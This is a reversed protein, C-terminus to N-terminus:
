PQAPAQQPAPPARQQQPQQPQTETTRQRQADGSGQQQQDQGTSDGSGQDSPEDEQQQQQQQQEEGGSQADGEDQTSDRDGGFLTTGGSAKGVSGGSVLEPITLIAAGIVFALAATAAVIKFNVRDRWSRGSPTPSSGNTGARHYSIPAERSPREDSPKTEGDEDHLPPPREESFPRTAETDRAPVTVTELTRQAPAGAGAGEPLLATREGTMRSSIARTPKHLLESLVSVVVPTIAAAAATGSKWFQSVIIAALASSISAIALTQVSLKRDAERAQRTQSAM